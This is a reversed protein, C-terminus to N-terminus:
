QRYSGLSRVFAIFTRVIILLCLQLLKLFWNIYRNTNRKITQQAGMEHDQLKGNIINLQAIEQDQQNEQM